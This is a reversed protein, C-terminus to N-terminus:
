NGTHRLLEVVAVLSRVTPVDGLPKENIDELKRACGFGGLKITGNEDLLINTPKLDCHIIGKSHLHQMAALLDRGFDHVSSEPLNMDKQLLSKLDGGVCYELILWLHNNTEYRRFARRSTSLPCTVLTNELIYATVRGCEACNLLKLTGATFDFYTRTSWATFRRSRFICGSLGSCEAM